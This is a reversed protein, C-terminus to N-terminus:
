EQQVAVVLSVTQALGGSIPHQIAQLEAFEETDLMEVFEQTLCSIKSQSYLTASGEACQESAGISSEMQSSSRTYRTSTRVSCMSEHKRRQIFLTAPRGTCARWFQLSCCECFVVVIMWVVFQMNSLAKCSALTATHLQTYLLPRCCFCSANLPLRVIRRRHVRALPQISADNYGLLLLMMTM